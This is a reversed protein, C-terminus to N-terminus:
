RRSDGRPPLQIELASVLWVSQQRHGSQTRPLAKVEFPGLVKLGLPWTQVHPCFCEEGRAESEHPSSPPKRKAVM